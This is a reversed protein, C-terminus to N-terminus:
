SEINETEVIFSAEEQRNHVLNIATVAGLQRHINLNDPALEAAKKFMIEANEYEKIEKFILGAFYYAMPENPALSIANQIYHLGRDYQRQEQYCRGLDIYAKPNKPSLKVAESLHHIAQDLHGSKRLLRGLLELIRVLEDTEMEQRGKVLAEQATQIASDHDGKLLYSEALAFLVRPNSPEIENLHNLAELAGREGQAKRILNIRELQIPISIPLNEIAKELSKLAEKPKDLATYTKSRLLLAQSNDPEKDLVDDLYKFAKQPNKVDLSVKALLLIADTIAPDMQVVTKACRIAQPVDGNQHYAHALALWLEPQKPNINTAQEL